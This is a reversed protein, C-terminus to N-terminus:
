FAGPSGAPGVEGYGTIAGETIEPRAMLADDVDIWAAEGGKCGVKVLQRETFGIGPLEEYEGENMGPCVDVTSEGNFRLDCMGEGYYAGVQVMSGTQLSVTRPEGEDYVEITVPKLVKFRTIEVVTAFGEGKAWPHYLAPSLTCSLDAPACPDRRAPLTVQSKVQVVPGPYEGQWVNTVETGAPCLLDSPDQSGTGVDEIVDEWQSDADTEMSGAALGGFVVLACLGLAHRGPLPLESRM